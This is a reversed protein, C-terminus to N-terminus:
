AESGRPKGLNMNIYQKRLAARRALILLMSDYTLMLAAM